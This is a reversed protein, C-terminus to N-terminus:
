LWLVLSRVLSMAVQLLVRQRTELRSKFQTLNILSLGMVSLVQETRAGAGCLEM